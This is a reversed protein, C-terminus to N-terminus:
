SFLFLKYKPLMNATLTRVQVLTLTVCKLKQIMEVATMVAMNLHYAHETEVALEMAVVKVVSVGNMGTQGFVM